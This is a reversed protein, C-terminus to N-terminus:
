DFVFENSKNWNFAITSLLNFVTPFSHKRTFNNKNKNESVPWSLKSVNRCEATEDSSTKLSKEDLMKKCKHDRFHFNQLLRDGENGISDSFFNTSKQETMFFFEIQSM